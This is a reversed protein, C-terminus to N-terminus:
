MRDLHEDYAPGGQYSKVLLFTKYREWNKINWFLMADEGQEFRGNVVNVAYVFAYLGDKAIVAIQEDTLVEGNIGKNYLDRATNKEEM